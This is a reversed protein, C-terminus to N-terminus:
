AAQSLPPVVQKKRSLVGPLYVANDTLRVDFAKEVLRTQGVVLLTTGEKLIDSVMLLLLDYGQQTKQAAMAELIDARRKLVVEQDAVEVQGIGIEYSGLEFEKFDNTIIDAPSMAAMDFKAEYMRKGYDLPDEDLFQGLYAVATEDEATTTPSKLLMTDSLIASVMMGAMERSPEVGAERYRRLVLTATCGVPAILATMPAGTQLGGLRHHDLIEVILAQEIGDATQSRESHDVLIVRPRRQRVLDTPAVIGLLRGDVDAVLAMSSPAAVLDDRMDNVLLDPDVTLADIELELATQASASLNILRAAAFTDHPTVLVATEMEAALDLITQTPEFGGTVILCAIHQRLAAEQANERNGVAVLDGAEVYALMADPAMAGIVVNGAVVGAPDGVLLRGNLTEAIKGLATPTDSLGQVHMERLYNRALIAETLLGLPREDEDVIPVGRIGHAYMLEGVEHITATAPATVVDRTMVDSVRVFLDPLLAPEPVSFAALVFRTERNLEGLRVAVHRDQSADTNKLHAYAIASCISDTDPNKHGFVYVPMM